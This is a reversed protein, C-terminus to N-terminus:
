VEPPQDSTAIYPSVTDSSAVSRQEDTLTLHITFSYQAPFNYDDTVVKKKAHTDSNKAPADTLLRQYDSKAHYLQMKKENPICLLYLTDNYVKRMVYNYHIGNFDVHGDYREFDNWNTSYPLNLPVKVQVLQNYSYQNNDLKEVIQRDSQQILFQFFLSYGALNFLHASLLLIAFTKKM